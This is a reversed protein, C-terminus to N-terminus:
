DQDSVVLGVARRRTAQLVHRTAVQALKREIAGYERANIGFAADTRRENEGFRRVQHFERALDQVALNGAEGGRSLASRRKVSHGGTGVKLDEGRATEAGLRMVGRPLGIVTPLTVSAVKSASTKFAWPATTTSKQASHHPGQRIIAGARSSIAPESLPLTLIRLSLTSSFWAVATLYLTVEIGVRM